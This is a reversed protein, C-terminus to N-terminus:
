GAPEAKAAHRAPLGAVRATHAQQIARNHRLLDRFLMLDRNTLRHLAAQSEEALPGWIEEFRRTAEETLEVHVQRRDVTDRVRRVYGLRELRDVAATIAGATIGAVQALRGATARGERFVAGLCRLDTLNTGLYRAAAEDFAQVADQWEAVEQGVEGVLDSKLQRSPQVNRRNFNTVTSAYRLRRHDHLIAPASGRRDKVIMARACRVLALDVM